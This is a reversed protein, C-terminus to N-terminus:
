NVGNRPRPNSESRRTLSIEYLEEKDRHSVSGTDKLGAKVSSPYDILEQFKSKRKIVALSLKKKIKKSTLTKMEIDQSLTKMDDEFLDIVQM